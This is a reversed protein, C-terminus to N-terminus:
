PRYIAGFVGLCMEDLTSEGLRVERPQALKEEALAAVLKPNGLSNDYTCRM